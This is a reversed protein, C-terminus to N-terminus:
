FRVPLIAPSVIVVITVGMLHMIIIIIIIIHDIGSGGLKGLAIEV